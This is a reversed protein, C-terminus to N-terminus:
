AMNSQAKGMGCQFTCFHFLHAVENEVHNACHEPSDGAVPDEFVRFCLQLLEGFTQIAKFRMMARHFSAMSIQQVPYM